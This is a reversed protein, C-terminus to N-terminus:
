ATDVIMEIEVPIDMPLEAMGVASRAHRGIVPGFIEVLLDSCGDIVAPTQNFGPACNVMGFVKVISTVRDLSGLEARVAALMLLGTARAAATAQELSVRAGVKGQILAPLADEIAIFGDQLEHSDGVRDLELPGHGSVYLVDGLRKLPLYNGVAPLMGPLDIGLEALRTEAGM